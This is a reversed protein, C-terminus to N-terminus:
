SKTLSLLNLATAPSSFRVVGDQALRRDCVALPCDIGIGVVAGIGIGSGFGIVIGIRIVAFDGVVAVGFIVALLLQCGPWRHRGDRVIAIAAVTGIAVFNGVFTVVVDVM